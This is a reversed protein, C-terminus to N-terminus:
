FTMLYQLYVVIISCEFSGFIELKPVANEGGAEQTAICASWALISM